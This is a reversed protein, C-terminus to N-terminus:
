AVREAEADRAAALLADHVAPEGNSAVLGRSDHRWRDGDLDTVRGGAQRVLHVGAVTDWPHCRVNTITGEIAGDAVMALTAQACGFRRMDACREVIGRCAAAYEDRRDFGWWVTPAATALEPDDVGSVSAPDGDRFAGDADSAYTDGVAPLDVAAALPEGDAVAAVATAFVRIGRVYNNTGDIPDVVWAPGEDPVTKREDDEEGVVADDPFAERLTEVVRRQADRDAQTVVDTEETKTEVALDTRFRESAVAAGARAARRAVAARSPDDHM